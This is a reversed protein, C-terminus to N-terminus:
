QVELQDDRSSLRQQALAPREIGSTALLKGSRSARNRVGVQRERATAIRGTADSHQRVYAPRRSLIQRLCAITNSRTECPPSGLRSSLCRRWRRLDLEALEATLSPKPRLGYITDMRKIARVNLHLHYAGRSKGGALPESERKGGDECHLDDPLRVLGIGSFGLRSRFEGM